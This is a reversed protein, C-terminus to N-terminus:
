ASSVCLYHWLVLGAMNINNNLYSILTVLTPLVDSNHSMFLSEEITILATINNQFELFVFFLLAVVDFCFAYSKVMM